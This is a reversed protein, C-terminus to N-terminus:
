DESSRGFSSLLDLLVANAPIDAMNASYHAYAITGATDTVFLAPMLGLKIINRQQRYLKGIKKDPDPVGHFPFNEGSFYKKVKELYYPAIVVMSTGKVVFKEYDQKM